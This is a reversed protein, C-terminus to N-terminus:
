GGNSSNKLRSSKPNAKQLNNPSYKKNWTKISSDKAKATTKMKPEPIEHGRKMGFKIVFKKEGELLKLAEEKTDGIAYCSGRGLEPHTAMWSNDEPGYKLEIKYPLGLYYKLTKNKM